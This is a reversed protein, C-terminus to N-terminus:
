PSCHPRSPPTPHTPTHPSIGSVCVSVPLWSHARQARLPHRPPSLPPYGSPPSHPRTRQSRAVDQALGTPDTGERAARAAGHDYFSWPEHMAALPGETVFHKVQSHTLTRFVFVDVLHGFMQFCGAGSNVRRLILAVLSRLSTVSTSPWGAPPPPALSLVGGAVSPPNTIAVEEEEEAGEKLNGSKVARAAVRKEEEELIRHLARATYRFGHIFGGSAKKHDLAHALTGVFYM